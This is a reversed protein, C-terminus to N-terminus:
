FSGLLRPPVAAHHSKWKKSVHLAPNLAGSTGPSCLPRNLLLAPPSPASSPETLSGWGPGWGASAGGPDQGVGRLLGASVWGPAPKPLLTPPLGPDGRQPRSQSHESPASQSSHGRHM